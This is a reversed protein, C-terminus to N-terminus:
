NHPELESQIFPLSIFILLMFLREFIQLWLSLLSSIGVSLQWQTIQRQQPFLVYIDRFYKVPDM